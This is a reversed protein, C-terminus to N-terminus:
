ASKHARAYLDPLFRSFHHMEESCHTLLDLGLQDPASRRRLAPHNIVRNVLGAAIPLGVDVDALWFCSRMESGGPVNRVVHILHGTAIRPTRLATRGCVAVANGAAALADPTLGYRRPDVFTISLHLKRRGVYETVRGTSGVYAGPTDAQRSIDRATACSVHAPPHWLRYRESSALHWAFWWDVMAPTVGPLESRTRVILTGDPNRLVGDEFPLEAADLLAVADRLPFAGDPRVGAGIAARVRAPPPAVVTM